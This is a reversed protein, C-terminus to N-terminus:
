DEDTISYWDQLNRCVEFYRTRLQSRSITLTDCRALNASGDSMCTVVIDGSAHRIFVCYKM